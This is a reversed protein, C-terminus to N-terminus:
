MPTLKWEYDYITHGCENHYEEEDHYTYDSLLFEWKKQYDMVSYSLDLGKM